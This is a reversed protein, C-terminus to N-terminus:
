YNKQLKQTAAFTQKRTVGGRKALPQCPLPLQIDNTNIMVNM